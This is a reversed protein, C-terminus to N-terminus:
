KKEKVDLTEAQIQRDVIIPIVDPRTQSPFRVPDIRLAQKSKV